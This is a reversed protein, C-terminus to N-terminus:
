SRVFDGMVSVAGSDFGVVDLMGADQPDAISFGTSTMGVVILKADIGTEKRYKKLAQSPHINGAWTENDTYVVFVDVELGKALAHLMPAACDTRGFDSRAIASTVAGLSMSAGVDLPVISKAFGVFCHQKETRATVMAMAGAGERASLTSNMLKSSVMSGSVDLALMHRKGTSEVNAFAKYFAGDLADAITSVASWARSGKVSVGSRYVSLANLIAFPHLRSSRIAREDSLREVVEATKGGIARVVGLSTLTGLNRLLATMGLNPLMAEWVKGDTLAWTPVQEWTLGHKEILPLLDKANDTKMAALYGALKDPLAIGDLNGDCAWRMLAVRGIDSADVKPHTRQIVRTHSYGNRTRYKTMQNALDDVPRQEYWTRFTRSVARGWGSGLADLLAAFEFLHSATRCVDGVAGLACRRVEVDEDVAGLALAFIAPSNKPARGSASIEVIRSATRVRDSKWCEVVSRANERTLERASQYYTPTDSGLVLFRDLRSWIDLAYVFGGANNRVQRDNLAENQPINDANILSAYSM